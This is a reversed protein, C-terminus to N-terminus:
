SVDESFREGELKAIVMAGCGDSIVNVTTRFMDLVRDALLLGISPEARIAM